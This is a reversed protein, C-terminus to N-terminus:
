SSSKSVGFFEILKGNELKFVRDSLLFAEEKSHTVMIVSLNYNKTQKSLYFVFESRSTSDLASFPEDMLILEPMNLITQGFSLRQKQGGSLERPYKHSMNKLGINNIVEDYSLGVKTDLIGIKLNNEVSLWPFLNNEQFIYGIKCNRIIEGSLVGDTNIGGIINLLTSKGIGSQGIISVFESKQIILDIGKIIRDKGYSFQINNLALLM